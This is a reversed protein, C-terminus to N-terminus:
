GSLFVTICACYLFDKGKNNTRRGVVYVSDGRTDSAM